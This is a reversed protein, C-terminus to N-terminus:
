VSSLRMTRVDLPELLMSQMLRRVTMHQWQSVVQDLGIRVIVEMIRGILM